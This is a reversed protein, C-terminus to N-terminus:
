SNRRSIKEQNFDLLFLFINKERNLSLVFKALTEALYEDIKAVLNRLLYIFTKDFM